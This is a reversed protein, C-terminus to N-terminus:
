FIKSRAIHLVHLIHNSSTLHDIKISYWSRIAFALMTYSNVSPGPTCGAPFGGLESVYPSTSPVTGSDVTRTSQRGPGGMQSRNLELGYGSGFHRDRGTALV